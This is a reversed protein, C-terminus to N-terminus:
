SRNVGFTGIDPNRSPPAPEPLPALLHTPIGRPTFLGHCRSLDINAPTEDSEVRSLVRSAGHRGTVDEEALLAVSFM